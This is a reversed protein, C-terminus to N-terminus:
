RRDGSDLEGPVLELEIPRGARLVRV